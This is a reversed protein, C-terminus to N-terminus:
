RETELNGLIQALQRYGDALSANEDKRQRLFAELPEHLRIAEDVEPSSGARYAGLRILEEMDAYTAMVARAKQITPWFQPDASKPMTRSVSKLINIAPYRGREAISRQMVIHGDLIGRVADAIPENHDDGDVLVTFIATIAGEGLGPGARELLKPLETFVTPTYGKATPPEGASLGIERQAMAFRTVSDMLCLVDQGEDRFYEAVALTLYAAQRRMLAPEDSTAVVVVSRALGEEGLDDQLFEQVERGREGILGIVSVAADVNRALMSLLVSKGVGSGAFIGMRQGRCCTLFTNMARVGLDLPSGVRKRSHAPPPSNRYPMPSAGQPLPGKGDIPEGLANVVRGLWASSPRVQNAANAIVAKCGRRVGDLGAFPMVVANNGSFGIVECPISRNAGTEIVLRAGVSMAHIPGAVEVMLGRVGVVRGYINVGDIDGIQEALAKM